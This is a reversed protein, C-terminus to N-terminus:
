KQLVPSYNRLEDICNLLQRGKEAMMASAPNSGCNLLTTVAERFINLRKESINQSYLAKGKKDLLRTIYKSNLEYLLIGRMETMGPCMKEVVDLLEHCTLELLKAEPSEKSQPYEEFVPMRQKLAKMLGLRAETMYHHNRHLVIGSYLRIFHQTAGLNEPELSSLKQGIPELIEMAQDFSITYGCGEKRSAEPVPKGFCIWEYSSLKEIEKCNEETRVPVCYGQQCARCKIAGIFTGLETPDECRKCTCFFYKSLSLHKRRDITGWLPDTYSISLKSGKTVVTTTRVEIGGLHSFRKTCNAVCSHELMSAYDYVALFYPGSTESTSRPIEHANVLLIGFIKRLDDADTEKLCFFSITFRVVKEEDNDEGSMHRQSRAERHSELNIFRNWHNVKHDRLFLCRLLSVSHYLPHCYSYERIAVKWADSHDGKRENDIRRLNTYYCEAEHGPSSSCEACCMPWGCKHCTPSGPGVPAFCGLCVPPTWQKPAVVLPEEAIILSGPNLDRTSVLHRGLVESTQILFPKCNARHGAKWDLKQHEKSCYHLIRCGSCRFTSEAGCTACPQLISTRALM